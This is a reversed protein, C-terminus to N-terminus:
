PRFYGVFCDIFVINGEKERVSFPSLKIQMERDINRPYM